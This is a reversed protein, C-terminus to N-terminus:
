TVEGQTLGVKNRQMGVPHQSVVGQLSRKRDKEGRGMVKSSAFLLVADENMKSIIM